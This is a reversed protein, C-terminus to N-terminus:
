MNWKIGGIIIGMVSSFIAIGIAGIATAWPPLRSSLHNYLKENTKKLISFQGRIETRFDIYEKQLNEIMTRNVEGYSCGKAM